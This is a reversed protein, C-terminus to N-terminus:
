VFKIKKDKEDTFISCSKMFAFCCIVLKGSICIYLDRIKGSIKIDQIGATIMNPLICKRSIYFFLIQREQLINTAKCTMLCDQRSKSNMEKGVYFYRPHLYMIKWESLEFLLVPIVELQSTINLKQVSYSSMIVLLYCWFIWYSALVAPLRATRATFDDCSYITEKQKQLRAVFWSLIRCSHWM